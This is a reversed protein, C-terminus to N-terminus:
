SLPLSPHLLPRPSRPFTLLHLLAIRPRLPSLLHRHRHRLCLCLCLRLRLSHALVWSWLREVDVLLGEMGSIFCWGTTHVLMRIM